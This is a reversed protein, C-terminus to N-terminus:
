NNKKTQNQLSESLLLELMNKAEEDILEDIIKRESAPPKHLVYKELPVEGNAGVGIRVRWFDEGISSIISKLGNHGGDSGGFRLRLSGTELNVDDCVVIVRDNDIKYFNKARSVAEGSLNMFTEPLVFILSLDGKAVKCYQFNERKSFIVRPEGGGALKEAMSLVFDKGVNHRTGEYEQGPNNLGVVLYQM